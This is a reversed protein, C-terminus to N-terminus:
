VIFKFLRYKMISGVLKQKRVSAQKKYLRVPKRIQKETDFRGDVKIWNMRLEESKKVIKAFEIKL